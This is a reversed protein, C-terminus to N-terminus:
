HSAGVCCFYKTKFYGTEDGFLKGFCFVEGRRSNSLPWVVLGWFASLEGWWEGVGQNMNKHLDM